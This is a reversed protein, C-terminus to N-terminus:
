GHTSCIKSQIVVYATIRFAGKSIMQCRDLSHITGTLTNTCMQSKNIGFIIYQNGYTHQWPEHANLTTHILHSLM